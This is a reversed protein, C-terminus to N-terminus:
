GGVERHWAVAGDPTVLYVGASTPVLLSGDMTPSLRSNQRGQPLKFRWRVAGAHDFRLVTGDVSLATTSDSLAVPADVERSGSIPGDVPTSWAIKGDPLVAHVAKRGRVYAVSNLGVAPPAVVVDGNPLELQWAVENSARLAVVKSGQTYIAVNNPLVTLDSTVIPSAPPAQPVSVVSAAPSAAASSSAALASPTEKSCGALAWALLCAATQWSFSPFAKM